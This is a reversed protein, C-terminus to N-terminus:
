PLNKTGGPRHTYAGPQSVKGAVSRTPRTGVAIMRGNTTMKPTQIRASCRPRDATGVMADYAMARSRVAGPRRGARVHMGVLTTQRLATNVSFM